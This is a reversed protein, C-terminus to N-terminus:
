GEYIIKWAGDSGRKWYQLKDAASSFNNSLYNQRFKVVFLNDDGPYTFLSDIKIQVQVFTKNVSIEKKRKLWTNFDGKGFNFDRKTYNAALAEIDLSEWDARWKEIVALYRARRQKLEDAALWEIEDSLVVPTRKEASVYKSIDLLDDNSLVFCGESAWPSRAYTDSPTGHLWIGYGTRKLYRDFRNPYNVPFAGKGYLDPLKKGEIFDNIEYVGVPTKNDGEVQKGYGESGVTLYYDKILRPEGNINQYVYLRGNPMDAVLVYPHEGLELLSSPVKTHSEQDQYAKHIWRNRLQHKLGNLNTDPLASQAGIDSLGTAMSQLIDARLLHGIQSKPFRILHADAKVLADELRGAQLTEIIKLVEPEYGGNADSAHLNSLLESQARAHQLCSGCVMCFLLVSISFAKIM